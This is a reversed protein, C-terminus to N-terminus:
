LDLMGATSLFIVPSSLVRGMKLNLFIIIQCTKRSYSMVESSGTGRTYMTM